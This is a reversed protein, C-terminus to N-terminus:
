YNIGDYITSPVHGSDFKEVYADMMELSHIIYAEVFQPLVPSSWAKRGHHSLIIHLLKDIKKQTLTHDPKERTENFKDALKSVDLIGFPIHHYLSARPVHHYESKPDCFCQGYAAKKDGKNPCDRTYCHIKGIDHILAGAVVLEENVAIGLKNYHRATQLGLKAVTISHFALGGAYAHHLRRSSPAVLFERLLGPNRSFVFRMFERLPNDRMNDFLLSLERIPHFEPKNM